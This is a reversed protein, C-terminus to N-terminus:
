RLFVLPHAADTQYVTVSLRRLTSETAPDAPIVVFDFGTFGSPNQLLPPVPLFIFRQVAAM